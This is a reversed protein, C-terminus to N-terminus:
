ACTYINFLLQGLIFDLFSRNKNIISVNIVIRMLKSWNHKSVFVFLLLSRWNTCVHKYLPINVQYSVKANVNEQPVFNTTQKTSLMEAILHSILFCSYLPINVHGHFNTGASHWMQIICLVGIYCHLLNVLRGYVTSAAVFYLSLIQTVLQICRHKSIQDLFGRTPINMAVLIPHNCLQM